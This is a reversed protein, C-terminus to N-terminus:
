PLQFSTKKLERLTPLLVYDTINLERCLNLALAEVAQPTAAHLMAYLNYPWDADPRRAYCHSVQPSAALKRGTVSLAEVPVNFAAMINGKVGAERHRLVVGIRRIVGRDKLSQVTACFAEREMDARQALVGFPDEALPLGDELAKLVKYELDSLM